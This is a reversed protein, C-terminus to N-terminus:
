EGAVALPAVAFRPQADEGKEFEEVLLVEAAGHCRTLDVAGRKPLLPVCRTRQYETGRTGFYRGSEFNWCDNARPWNLIHDIYVSLDEDVQPSFSLALARRWAALVDEVAKRHRKAVWELADDLDLTNKHM